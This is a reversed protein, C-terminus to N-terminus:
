LSEFIEMLYSSFIIIIIIIIILIILIIIIMIVILIRSPTTASVGFVKFHSDTVYWHKM